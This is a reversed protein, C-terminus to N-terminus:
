RKASYNSRLPLEYSCFSRQSTMIAHARKPITIEIPQYLFLHRDISARASERTRREVYVLLLRVFKKWGKTKSAKTQCNSLDLTKLFPPCQFCALFRGNKRWTGKPSFIEQTLARVNRSVYKTPVLNSPWGEGM